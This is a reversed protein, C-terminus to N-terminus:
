LQPNSQKAPRIWRQSLFLKTVSGTKTPDLRSESEVEVKPNSDLTGVFGKALCCKM